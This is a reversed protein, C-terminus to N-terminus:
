EQSTGKADSAPGCQGSDTQAQQEANALKSKAKLMAVAREAFEHASHEVYASAFGPPVPHDVPASDSEKIGQASAPEIGSQLVESSRIAKSKDIRELTSAVWEVFERGRDDVAAQVDPSPVGPDRSAQLYRRALLIDKFTVRDPQDRGQGM